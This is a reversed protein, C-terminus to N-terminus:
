VTYQTNRVTIKYMIKMMDVNCVVAGVDVLNYEIQNAWSSLLCLMHFRNLECKCKGIVTSTSYTRHFYFQIVIKCYAM